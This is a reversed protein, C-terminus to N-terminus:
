EGKHLTWGTTNIRRARLKPDSITYKVSIPPVPTGINSRLAPRCLNYENCFKHLEGTVVYIEGNPSMLTWKTARPNEAGKYVGQKAKAINIRHSETKKKGALKESIVKNREKTYKTYGGKGGAAENLGMLPMPRLEAEKDFCEEDSGVFLIKMNEEFTLSNERIYVGVTYKSETHRKWRYQLNKTVGVYCRHLANSLDTSTGIAYVYCM